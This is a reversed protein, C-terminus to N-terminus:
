VVPDESPQNEDRPLFPSVSTKHGTVFGAEVDEPASVFAEFFGVIERIGINEGSFDEFIYFGGEFLEETKSCKYGNKIQAKEIQLVTVLFM